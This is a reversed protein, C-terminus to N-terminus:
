GFACLIQLLLHSKNKVLVFALFAFFVKHPLQAHIQQNQPPGVNRAMRPRMSVAM